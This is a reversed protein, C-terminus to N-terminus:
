QNSFKCHKVKSQRIMKKESVKFWISDAEDSLTDTVTPRVTQAHTIITIPITNAKTAILYACQYFSLLYVHM